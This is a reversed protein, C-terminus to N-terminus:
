GDGSTQIRWLEGYKEIIGKKKLERLASTIVNRNIDLIEMIESYKMPKSSILNLILNRIYEKKSKNSLNARIKYIKGSIGFVARGNNLRCLKIIKKHSLLNRLQNKITREGYKFSLREIIENLT